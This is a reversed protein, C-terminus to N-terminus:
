EQSEAKKKKKLADVAKSIEELTQEESMGTADSAKKIAETTINRADGMNDEYAGCGCNLCM